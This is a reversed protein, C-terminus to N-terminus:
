LSGIKRQQSLQSILSHTKKAVVTSQFYFEHFPVSYLTDMSFHAATKAQNIHSCRRKFASGCKMQFTPDIARDPTCFCKQVIDPLRPILLNSHSM